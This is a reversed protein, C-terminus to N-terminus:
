LFSFCKLWTFVTPLLWVAMGGGFVGWLYAPLRKDDPGAGTALRSAPTGRMLPAKFIVNALLAGGVLVMPLASVLPLKEYYFLIANHLPFTSTKLGTALGVVGFDLLNAELQNPHTVACFLFFGAAFVIDLLFWPRRQKELFTTLVLFPAILIMWQPHWDAFLFLSAFVTLCIWIGTKGLADKPPSWLYAVFCLILLTIPFLYLPWGGMLVGGFLRSIMISNFAGIDGTRGWFLLTTPVLLWLSIAAYKLIQLFRKERLLLLPIFVMLPFFKCAAGAGMWLAFYLMKGRLWCLVSVLLFFLCLSDYQGMIISSFFAPPWLAFFLGAWRSTVKDLGLEQAILMVVPICAVFFGASVLKGIFYVLPESVATGFILNFLYVPLEALAFILYVAINYHASNIYYLSNEHAIINNYFHLFRGGFLSDWFLYGHNATEIVDPHAFLALCVACLSFFLIWHLRAPQMKTKTLTAM